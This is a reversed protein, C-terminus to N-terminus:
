FLLEKLFAYRIEVKLLLDYGVEQGPERPQHLLKFFPVASDNVDAGLASQLPLRIPAILKMWAESTKALDSDFNFLGEFLYERNERFRGGLQVTNSPPM